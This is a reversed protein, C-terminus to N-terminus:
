VGPAGRVVSGALWDHLGRRRETVLVPVFGLFLPLSALLIGVLRALAHRPRLRSGDAREVRIQMLRNGPTQGTTTWFAVFYGVIWIVFVAGGIAVLIKDREHSTPLVSSVLAIVVAVLLAVVNIVAADVAFAIVRTVLGIYPAPRGDAPPTGHVRRAISQARALSAAPVEGQVAV